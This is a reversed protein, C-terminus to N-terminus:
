DDSKEMKQVLDNIVNEALNLGRIVGCVTRYEEIDAARGSPLMFLKSKKLKEIEKAVHALLKYDNLRRRGLNKIQEKRRWKCPWRLKTSPSILALELAKLSKNSRFNTKQLPQAQAWRCLRLKKRRRLAHSRLAFSTLKLRQTLQQKQAKLQLEQMKIQLEQQQMQVIPDQAQQQAQQQAAQSQAQQTMRTSAQAALQAVQAAVEPEMNKEQEETPLLLGVTQEVEKRYAFALHENIHAMMAAVLAQGQPTQQILGMIKPNQLMSTHVAIHAQHDQEIFAKNPKGTLVNQNEQVPDTAKADDEIPV